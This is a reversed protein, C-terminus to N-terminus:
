GQIQQEIKAKEEELKFIGFKTDAIRRELSAIQQKNAQKSTDVARAWEEYEGKRNPNTSDIPSISGNLKYQQDLLKRMESRNPDDPNTIPQNGPIGEMSKLANKLDDLKQNTEQLRQELGRKDEKSENKTEKVEPKISKDEPTPMKESM